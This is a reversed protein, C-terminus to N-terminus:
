NICIFICIGNFLHKSISVSPLGIAMDSLVNKDQINILNIGTKIKWSYPFEQSYLKFSLSFFLIILFIEKRRM